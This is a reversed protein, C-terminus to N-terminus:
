KTLHLIGIHKDSQAYTNVIKKGKQSPTYKQRVRQQELVISMVVVIPRIKM